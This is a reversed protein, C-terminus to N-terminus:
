RARPFREAYFAAVRRAVTAPAFQADFRARGAAGLAAAAGPAALLRSWADAMAAADDSPVLSAEVGDDVMEPIGGVRTAVLPCGDAMAELVTMPFTEYRSAVVVISAARRVAAVEAPPLAGHWRIRRVVAADLGLSALYSPFDVSAADTGRMGKDPGVLDLEVEPDRRALAAFAALVTDSGKLREFRGIHAIRRRGAPRWAPTAPAEPGPNPLVVAHPLPAGHRQEVAALLARTPAIVAAAREMGLREGAVRRRFDADEGAGSAAGTLFWPGHLRVVVPAPARRVLLAPVGFSEEIEIADLPARRALARAAEAIGDAVVTDVGRGGPLRALLASRLRLPWPLARGRAHPVVDPDDSGYYLWAIAASQVGVSALGRRMAEVYTAVGNQTRSAPWAPTAFAIRLPQSM